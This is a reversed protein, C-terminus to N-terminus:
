LHSTLNHAAEGPPSSSTSSTGEDLGETHRRPTEEEEGVACRAAGLFSMQLSFLFTKIEWPLLVGSHFWLTLVCLPM